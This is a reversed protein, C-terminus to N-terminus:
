SLIVFERGKGLFLREPPKQADWFRWSLVIHVLFLFFKFPVGSSTKESSFLAYLYINLKSEGYGGSASVECFSVYLFGVGSAEEAFSLNILIWFPDCLGVFTLFIVKLNTMEKRLVSFQWARVNCFILSSCLGSRIEFLSAFMVLEQDNRYRESYEDPLCTVVMGEVRM